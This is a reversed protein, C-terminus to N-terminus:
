KDGKSVLIHKVNGYLENKHKPSIQIAIILQGHSISLLIANMIFNRMVLPSNLKNM